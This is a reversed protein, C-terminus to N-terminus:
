CSVSFASFLGLARKHLSRSTSHIRAISFVVPSVRKYYKKRVKGDTFFAPCICSLAKVIDIAIAQLEESCGLAIDFVPKLAKKDLVFSSWSKPVQCYEHEEKAGAFNLMLCERVVKLASKLLPVAEDPYLPLQETFRNLSTLSFSLVDCMFSDKFKARISKSRTIERIRGENIEGILCEYTSFVKALNPGASEVISKVEAQTNVPDELWRLILVEALGQMVAKLIDVRLNGVFLLQFYFHQFESKVAATISRHHASLIERISLVAYCQAHENRTAELIEKM